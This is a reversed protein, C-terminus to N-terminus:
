VHFVRKLLGIYQRGTLVIIVVFYAIALIGGSLFQGWQQLKPRTRIFGAFCAIILLFHGGGAILAILLDPRPVQGTHALVTLQRLGARIFDTVFLNIYNWFAAIICGIGFGWPNNRRTLVIVAVYILAQLAHLLRIAPEFVASVFLAFLFLGAGTYIFARIWVPPRDNQNM